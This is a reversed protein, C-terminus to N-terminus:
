HVDVKLKFICSKYQIRQLWKWEMTENCKYNTNNSLGSSCVHFGNCYQPPTKGYQCISIMKEQQLSKLTLFHWCKGSLYGRKLISSDMTQQLTTTIVSFCLKLDRTSCQIVNHFVQQQEYFINIHKMDNECYIFIIEMQPILQNTQRISVSQIGTLLFPNRIYNLYVGIPQPNPYKFYPSHPLSGDSKRHLDNPWKVSWFKNNGLVSDPWQLM